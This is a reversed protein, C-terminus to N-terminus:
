FIIQHTEFATCILWKKLPSFDIFVRYTTRVKPGKWGSGLGGQNWGVRIGGPYSGMQYGAGMWLTCFHFEGEAPVAPPGGAVRITDVAGWPAVGSGMYAVATTSPRPFLLSLM